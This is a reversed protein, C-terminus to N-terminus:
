AAAPAAPELPQADPGHPAPASPPAPRPPEILATARWTPLLSLAFSALLYFVDTALGGRNSIRGALLDEAADRLESPPLPTQADGRVADYLAAGIGAQYVFAAAAATALLALRSADGDQGLLVVMVALKVALKVHVMLAARHTRLRRLGVAVFGAPRAPAVHPSQRVVVTPLLALRANAAAEALVNENTWCGERLAEAYVRSAQAHYAQADSVAQLVDARLPERPPERPPPVEARPAVPATAAAASPTAPPRPPAPAPSTAPSPAAARPSQGNKCLVLHFSHATQPEDFDRLVDRLADGDDCIKGCYILRQDAPAPREAFADSLRGKLSAITTSFGVELEVTAGGSYVNAVVVRAMREGAVPAAEM